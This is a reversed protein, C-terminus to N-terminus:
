GSIVSRIKELVAPDFMFEAPIPIIDHRAIKVADKETTVLASARVDAARADIRALDAATYLHHDPFEITAALELGASELARFFQRNDALAAFAVVRKGRVADPVQLRLDRPIVLDAHRLASRSERYLRADRVDIVVDLDRHIQMHQFGDDLIFVDCSHSTLYQNANSFRNVGVIVDANEAKRKILVPEDGFKTADVADVVGTVSPDRRGYGRTLVAVKIGKGALYRALAIVAPTKGAGGAAINGISIVPKPLRRPRLLGARYLTRRVWNVRRLLVGALALLVKM